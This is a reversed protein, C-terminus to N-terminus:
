LGSSGPSWVLMAVYCECDACCQLLGQALLERFHGSRALNTEAQLYLGRQRAAACYRQAALTTCGYRLESCAAQFLSGACSTEVCRNLM